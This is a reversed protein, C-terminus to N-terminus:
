FARSLTLVATNRRSHSIPYGTSSSGTGVWSAQLTFSEIDLAIGLRGDVFRRDTPGYLPYDGRNFVIGVHAVARVRDTLPQVGNMEAYFAGPDRGFYRPAYYLRASMQDSAIGVYFESYDYRGPDTFISYEAGVEASLGSAFRRVYGAYPVAQLERHPSIAFEVNSVFVGAYVGSPDDYAFSGQVAPDGRSLSIGRYRYDTVFSLTGSIQAFADGAMLGAALALAGHQIAREVCRPLRITRWRARAPAPEPRGRSPRAPM